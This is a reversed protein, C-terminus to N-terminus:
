SAVTIKLVENQGAPIIVEGPGADAIFFESDCSQNMPVWFRIKRLPGGPKKIQYFIDHDGLPLDPCMVRILTGPRGYMVADSLLIEVRYKEGAMVQGAYQEAGLKRMENNPNEITQCIVDYLGRELIIQQNPLSIAKYNSVKLLAKAKETQKQEFRVLLLGNPVDSQGRVVMTGNQVKTLTVDSLVNM